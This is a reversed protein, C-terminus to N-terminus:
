IIGKLRHFGRSMVHVGTNVGGISHGAIRAQVQLTEQQESDPLKTCSLPSLSLPPNRLRVLDSPGVIVIESFDIFILIAIIKIELDLGLKINTV